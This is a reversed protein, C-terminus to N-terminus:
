ECWRPTLFVRQILRYMRICLVYLRFLRPILFSFHSSPLELHNNSLCRSHARENARKRLTFCKMVNFQVSRTSFRPPPRLASPRAAPERFLTGMAAYRRPRATQLGEAFYSLSFSFAARPRPLPPPLLDLYSSLAGSLLRTPFSPLTTPLSCLADLVALIPFRSAPAHLTASFSSSQRFASSSRSGSLNSTM